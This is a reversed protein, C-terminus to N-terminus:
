TSTYVNNGEEIWVVDGKPSHIRSGTFFTGFNIRGRERRYQALARLTNGRMGSNPDIDVMQCRACKGVASLEVDDTAGRIIIQHWTDEPNTSREELSDTVEDYSSVVINPRFHRSEVLRGTGQSLIVSNLISISQQSLVLMSAENCYAHGNSEDSLPKNKVVDHHRALWCRVGLVSSFWKSAKAGGWINGKCLTGCVQIDEPSITNSKTIDLRLVLPEHNSSVVTLTRTELDITANIESMQPYSHLRMAAGSSDVLAFERDFALRGTARDIQHSAHWTHWHYTFVDSGHMLISTLGDRQSVPWRNVRMASCSKIPFVFLSEIRMTSNQYQASNGESSLLRPHSEDTHSVFVKAVFRVLADMDEWTSDKGFSARVAGTPKGDVIGRQDGCVVNGFLFNNLVDRESLRIASQCAGPNCFCGTRLQIPPSNITALKSVEDYGVPSGDSGLINFAVTPGYGMGRSKTAASIWGYVEVVPRGNKHLVKAFRRVLEAALCTSHVSITEMGGYDDIEQFGHVIQAIGRFHESGHILVGLDVHEDEDAEHEHNDSATTAYANRTSVFDKKPLVVNVSGGGFYHRPSCSRELQVGDLLRLKSTIGNEACIGADLPINVSDGKLNGRLMGRNPRKRRHHRKVLLAGLGTPTGFLKYFSVVAFDPGGGHSLTPLHVPSTAAAKATDLLIHWKHCIKCQREEQRSNHWNLNYTVVSEQAMAIIYSWDFREGGFNCELPLVLLHQLWITRCTPSVETELGDEKNRETNTFNTRDEVTLQRKHDEEDGDEKPHVEKEALEWYDYSVSRRLLNQFWEASADLLEEVSVCHFQAGHQLAIQRMGIVSTHVNNPYLLTSSLRISKVRKSLLSSTTNDVVGNSLVVRGDGDVLTMSFEQSSSSSSCSSPSPLPAIFKAYSWPFREAVLRLSDTAGSTFVVQYGLNFSSANTVVDEEEEERGDPDDRNHKARCDDFVGFHQLVCQEAERMLKMTLDSARGGGFSHPNALIQHQQEHMYIRHLLSKTPLASGAYDLYVEEEEEEEEADTDTTAINNYDPDMMNQEDCGYNTDAHSRSRNENKVVTSFPLVDRDHQQGDLLIPPVELPPILSPFEMTRWNDIYGKKSDIYGYQGKSRSLFELKLQQQQQKALTTATTTRTADDSQVAVEAVAAHNKKTMQPTTTTPPIIVASVMMTPPDEIEEKAAARWSRRRRRQGRTATTLIIALTILAAVTAAAQSLSSPTPPSVADVNNDVASPSSSFYNNDAGSDLM